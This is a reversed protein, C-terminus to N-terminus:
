VRPDLAGQRRGLSHKIVGLFNFYESINGLTKNIIMLCMIIEAKHVPGQALDLSNYNYMDQQV